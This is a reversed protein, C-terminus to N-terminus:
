ARAACSRLFSFERNLKPPLREFSLMDIRTTGDTGFLSRECMGEGSTGRLGSVDVALRVPERSSSAKLGVSVSSEDDLLLGVRWDLRKEAQSPRM